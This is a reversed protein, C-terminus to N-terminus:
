IRELYYEIIADYAETQSNFSRTTSINVLNDEFWKVKGYFYIRESSYTYDM